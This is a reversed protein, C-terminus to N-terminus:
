VIRAADLFEADDITGEFLWQCIMVLAPNFETFAFSGKARMEPILRFHRPSRRRVPKIITGWHKPEQGGYVEHRRANIANWGPTAADQNGYRRRYKPSTWIGM